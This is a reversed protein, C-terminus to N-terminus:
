GYLKVGFIARAATVCIGIVLVQLTALASVLGVEGQTWAQLLTTGIV